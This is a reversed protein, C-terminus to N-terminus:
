MQGYCEWSVKQCKNVVDMLKLSKSVLSHKKIQKLLSLSIKYEGSLLYSYAMAYKVDDDKYVGYQRLSVDLSRALDFMENEIYFSLKQSLKENPDTVIINLTFANALRDSRMLYSAADKSFEKNLYALRTYLNGSTITMKQKDYLAALVKLLVENKPNVLVGYELINIAKGVQGASTFISSLKEYIQTHNHEILLKPVRLFAEEFLQMKMLYNILLLKANQDSKVSKASLTSIVESYMSNYFYVKAKLYTVSKSPHKSIDVLNLAQLALSYKKNKVYAQALYINKLDIFDSDNVKQLQVIADKIKDTRLQYLGSLLYYHDHNIDDWEKRSQSLAGKARAYSGDKILMSALALYDVDQGLM